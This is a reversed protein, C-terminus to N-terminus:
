FHCHKAWPHKLHLVAVSYSCRGMPLSLMSSIHQQKKVAGPATGVVPRFHLFVVWSCEQRLSKNYLLNSIKLGEDKVMKDPTEM